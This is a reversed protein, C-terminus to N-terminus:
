NEGKQLVRMVDKVLAAKSDASVCVSRCIDGKYIIGVFEEGNNLVNYDVDIIEKDIDMLMPKLHKIIFTLKKAQCDTMVPAEQTIVTQMDYVRGSQTTILSRGSAFREVNVVPTTIRVLKGDLDFIYMKMDSKKIISTFQLNELGEINGNLIQAGSWFCMRMDRAVEAAADDDEDGTLSAQVGQKGREAYYDDVYFYESNKVARWLYCDKSPKENNYINIFTECDMIRIDINYIGVTTKIWGSDVYGYEDYREIQVDDENFDFITDKPFADAMIATVQYCQRRVMPCSAAIDKVIKIMEDKLVKKMM